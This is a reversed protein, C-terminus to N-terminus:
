LGFSGDSTCYMYIHIHVHIQTNCFTAIDRCGFLGRGGFNTQMCKVDVEVQM